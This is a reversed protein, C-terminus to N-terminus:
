VTICLMPFTFPIFAGLLNQCFDVIPDLIMVIFFGYSMSLYLQFEMEPIGFSPILPTPLSPFAPFGPLSLTGFLQSLNISGLGSMLSGFDPVSPIAAVLINLIGQLTPMQLPFSPFSLVHVPNNLINSVSNFLDLIKTIVLSTYYTIIQMVAIPIKIEDISLSSFFPNPLLAMVASVQNQIATKIGNFVAPFDDLIDLLNFSLGPITPLIASLDLSLFDTLPKIIAKAVSLLQTAQLTIIALTAEVNPMNISGFLPSVLTPFPLSFSSLTPPFTLSPRLTGLLGEITPLIEAACITTM